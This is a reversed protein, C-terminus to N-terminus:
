AASTAPASGSATGSSGAAVVKCLEGGFFLVQSVVNMWLLVALLAGIVGYASPNKEFFLGYLSLLEGAAVCAFSCLLTALWVDRWRIAIPPLFKLLLAFTIATIILSSLTTVFWGTTQGHLALSELLRNLWKTAVLMGLAILLLGGGGLVMVSAIVRELITERVVARMSGAVLPPKHKWIARFALRLHKFLVSAALLTGGLSIVTAIISDRKLANLLQEITMPLQPGFSAEIRMLIHQQAELVIPSFRLLLGLAGMLLLFMPIMSVLAYYIMAVAFYGARDNEYEVGATRLLNVLRHGYRKIRDFSEGARRMKSVISHIRTRVFRLM